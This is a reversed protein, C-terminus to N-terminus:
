EYEKIGKYEKMQFVFSAFFDDQEIHEIIIDENNVGEVIIPMDDDFLLNLIPIIKKLFRYEMLTFFIRVGSQNGFLNLFIVVNNIIKHTLNQLLEYEYDMTDSGDYITLSSDFKNMHKKIISVKRLDKNFHESKTFKPNNYNVAAYYAVNNKTLNTFTEM